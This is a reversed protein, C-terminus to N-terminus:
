FLAGTFEPSLIFRATRVKPTGSQEIGEIVCVQEFTAGGGLPRNRVTVADGLERGLMMAFVEAEQGAIPPGLEISVVRRRPQDYEDVIFGAYSASYSDLRHLLGDLTYQFRGFETISGADTDTQAVGNLRSITASNRIVTDGDDFTIATYGVEPSLDGLVALVPTRTDQSARSVMRLKGERNMFTLGFETEGVKQVHELATQDAIEASQLAVNGPDIETGAVWGTLDVVREIRDEPQDDQWPASGASFHRDVWSQDVASANAGVYVAMHSANGVWNNNGPSGATLVELTDSTTFAGTTAASSTLVGDVWLRLPEGSVFRAVVHHRKNRQAVASTATFATAADNAVAFAFTGGPNDYILNMQSSDGDTFLVADDLVTGPPDELPICWAELVFPAVAFLDLTAAPVVLGMSLFVSTGLTDQNTFVSGGADNTILPQDGFRLPPGVYDRSGASGLSGANLAQLTLGDPHNLTEDLRWYLTPSDSLVEVDYVSRGLETRNFMKFGDTATITATADKGTDPYDLQWKDVYGDFIPYTVGNITERIRVRRMPRVNSNTASDYARTRNNLVITARGPQFRELERGRGRSTSWSRVDGSIDVWVPEELAGTTPSWEVALIAETQVPIEAVDSAAYAVGGYPFGGYSV